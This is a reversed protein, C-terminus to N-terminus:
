QALLLEENRTGSKVINFAPYIRRDSLERDLVSGMNGTGKCEEFIVGDM